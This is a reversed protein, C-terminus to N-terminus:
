ALVTIGFYALVIVGLIIRYIGFPTFSHRKVFGMLFKIAVLSVFFSVAIGIFLLALEAGTATFGDMIFSLLKLGSAGIMIPIAMFFSFEASVERSVGSIMGGLTTTGSRSAGPILSLVQFTGIKLADTCTLDYISQVRFEGDTGRGLRLREVIIFAIGFVILSAAVVAFHDPIDFFLELVVGVVGAPVAGLIVKGWLVLTGHREEKSKKRSFPNLKDFFLCPVALIAGLQIVVIFMELFEESFTMPMLEDLLILHGTSSIPLWETIGEVIGYLVAKLVELFDM